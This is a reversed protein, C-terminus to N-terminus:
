GPVTTLRTKWATSPCFTSTIRTSVAEPTSIVAAGSPLIGASETQLRRLPDARLTVRLPEAKGEGSVAVVLPKGDDATVSLSVPLTGENVLLFITRRCVRASQEEV